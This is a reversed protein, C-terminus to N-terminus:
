LPEGNPARGRSQCNPPMGAARQCRQQASAGYSGDDDTVVALIRRIEHANRHFRIVDEGSAPAAVGRRTVRRPGTKAPM